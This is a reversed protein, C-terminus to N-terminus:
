YSTRCFRDGRRIIGTARETSDNGRRQHWREWREPGHRSVYSEMRLAWSLAFVFARRAEGVTPDLGRQTEEYCQEFWM